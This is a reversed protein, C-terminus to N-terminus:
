HLSTYNGSLHLVTHFQQQSGHRSRCHSWIADVDTEEAGSLGRWTPATTSQMTPRPSHSLVPESTFFDALSATQTGLHPTLQGQSLTTLSQLINFITLLGRVVCTLIKVIKQIHRGGTVQIGVCTCILSTTRFIFLSKGSSHFLTTSLNLGIHQSSYSVKDVMQSIIKFENVPM